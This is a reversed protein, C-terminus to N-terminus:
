CSTARGGRRPPQLSSPPAPQPSSITPSARGRVPAQRDAPITFFLEYKLDRVAAARERALTESVGRGPDVQPQAEGSGLLTLAVMFGLM